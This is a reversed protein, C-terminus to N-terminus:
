TLSNMGIQAKAGIANSIRDPGCFSNAVVVAATAGREIAVQRSGADM